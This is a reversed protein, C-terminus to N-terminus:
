ASVELLLAIPFDAFLDGALLRNGEKGTQMTHRAGTFINRFVTGEALDALELETDAWTNVGTPFRDINGLRTTLRPVVVIAKRSGELRLFAFLSSEHKGRARM